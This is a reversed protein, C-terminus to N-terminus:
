PGAGAASGAPPAGSRGRRTRVGRGPASGSFVTGRLTPRPRERDGVILPGPRAATVGPAEGEPAKTGGDLISRTDAGWPTPPATAFATSCAISCAFIRRELDCGRPPRTPSSMESGSGLKSVSSSVSARCARSNSSSRFLRASGPSAACADPPPVPVTPPAGLPAAAVGSGAGAGAGAGVPATGRGASGAAPWRGTGATNWRM